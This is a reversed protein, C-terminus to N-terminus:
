DWSRSESELHIKHLLLRLFLLACSLDRLEDTADLSGRSLQVIRDQIARGAREIQIVSKFDDPERVAAFYALYWDPVKPPVPLATPQPEHM